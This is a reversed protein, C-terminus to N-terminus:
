KFLLTVLTYLGLSKFYGIAAIGFLGPLLLNWLWMILLPKIFFATVKALSERAEQKAQEAEIAQLEEDTPEIEEVNKNHLFITMKQKTALNKPQYNRRDM